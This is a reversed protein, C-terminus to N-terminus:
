GYDTFGEFFNETMYSVRSSDIQELNWGENGSVREVQQILGQFICNLKENFCMIKLPPIKLRTLSEKQRM